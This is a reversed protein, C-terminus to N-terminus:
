EPTKEESEFGFDVLEMLVGMGPAEMSVIGSIPVAQSLVLVSGSDEGDVYLVAVDIEKGGITRKELKMVTAEDEPMDEPNNQLEKISVQSELTERDDEMVSEFLITLVREDGEGEIKTITQKQEAGMIAYTAWHGVAVNKSPDPLKSFDLAQVAGCMCVVAVAIWLRKAM